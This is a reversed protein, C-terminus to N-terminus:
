QAVVTLQYGSEEASFGPKRKARRSSLGTCRAAQM